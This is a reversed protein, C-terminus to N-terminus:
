ARGLAESHASDLVQHETGELYREIALFVDVFRYEPFDQAAISFRRPSGGLLDELKSDIRDNMAAIGLAFIALMLLFAVGVLTGAAPGHVQYNVIAAVFLALTVFFVNAFRANQFM